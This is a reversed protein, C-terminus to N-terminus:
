RNALLNMTLYLEYNFQDGKGIWDSFQDHTLVTNTDEDGKASPKASDKYYEQSAFYNFWDKDTFSCVRMFDGMALNHHKMVLRQKFLNPEGQLFRGYTERRIAESTIHQYSRERWNVEVNMVRSASM